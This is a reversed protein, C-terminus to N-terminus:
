SQFVRHELTPVDYCINIDGPAPTIDCNNAAYLTFMGDYDVACMMIAQNSIATCDGAINQSLGFSDFEIMPKKYTKKM